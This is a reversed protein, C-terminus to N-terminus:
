GREWVVLQGDLDDIGVATLAQINGMVAFSITTPDHLIRTRPCFVLSPKKNVSTAIAVLNPGSVDSVLVEVNGTTACLITGWNLDPILYRLCLNETQDRLRISTMLDYRHVASFTEINPVSARFICRIHLLKWAM